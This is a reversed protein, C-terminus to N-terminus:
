SGSPLLAVSLLRATVMIFVDGTAWKIIASSVLWRSFRWHRQVVAGFVEKSWELTGLFCSSFLTAVFAAASIIWLARVADVDTALLLWILVPIQIGFRVMDNAFAMGPIECAYFYRRFFYQFQYTFAAFGLPVALGELQWEPAIGGVVFAGVVLLLFSLFAVLLQQAFVAGFYKTRENDPYKPAITMMPALVIAGQLGQAFEIIIWVLVFKGFEAPGLYRALLVSTLLNGSSVLAQDTLAWNIHSYRSLLESSIKM